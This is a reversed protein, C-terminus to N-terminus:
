RIDTLSDSRDQSFFFWFAERLELFTLHSEVVASKYSFM